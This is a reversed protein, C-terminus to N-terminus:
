NSLLKKFKLFTFNNFSLILTEPKNVGDKCKLELEQLKELMIKLSQINWLDLHKKFSTEQKFFIRQSRLEYDINSGSKINNKVIYIKLLYNSLSRVITIINVKDQILKELLHNSKKIELSYFSNIFESISIQSIDAIVKQSIELTINQEKGMYLALKEIENLIILRNKGFKDIIVDIVGNEATLNYEKFKNVIINRITNENDEYCAIAAFHPSSEAFKRLSSSNDLEKASILIFNSGIIKGSNNKSEFINKLNNTIKNTANHIKILKRGGMMSMSVFEDSLISSDEDIRKQEINSVLFPDSLNKVISKAIKNSNITVIGSEPGYILAGFIQKNNAISNIFSDIKYPAIKM